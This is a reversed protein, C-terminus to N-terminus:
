KYPSRVPKQDATWPSFNDYINVLDKGDESVGVIDFTSGTFGNMYLLWIRKNDAEIIKVSKWGSENTSEKIKVEKVEDNGIVGFYLPLSSQKIPLFYNYTLGLSESAKTIDTGVGSYLTKYGFLNKGIFSTRLVDENENYAFFLTGKDTRDEAIIKFSDSTLVSLENELTNNKNLNFISILCLILLAIGILLISKKNL